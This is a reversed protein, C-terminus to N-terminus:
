RREEGLKVHYGVARRVLAAVWDRGRGTESWRRPLAFPLVVPLPPRRGQEEAPIASLVDEDAAVVGSAAAACAERLREPEEGQAAEVVPVGALRFGIAAGPRALVVLRPPVTAAAV